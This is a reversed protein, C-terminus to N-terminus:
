DIHMNHLCSIVSSRFQEAGFLAPPIALINCDELLNAWPYEITSLYGSPPPNWQPAIAKLKAALARWEENFKQAQFRPLDTQKTLCQFAWGRESATPIDLFVQAERHIHEPVVAIGALCRQLWTKSISCALICQDSAILSQLAPHELHHYAYVLDLVLYHTTAASLWQLLHETEIPSLMRGTPSHPAPLLLFENKRLSNMPIELKLDPWTTYCSSHAGYEHAISLYTPFIDGPIWWHAQKGSETQMLTRLLSRIGKNLFAPRKPLQLITRFTAELEFVSSESKPDDMRWAQLAAFPNMCDLRLPNKQALIEDRIAHWDDLKM